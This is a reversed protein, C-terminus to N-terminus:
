FDSDTIDLTYHHFYLKPRKHTLETVVAWTSSANPDRQCTDGQTSTVLIGQVFNGIPSPSEEVGLHSFDGLLLQAGPLLTTDIPGMESETSQFRITTASTSNRLTFDYETFRECGSAVAGVCIVFLLILQKMDPIYFHM